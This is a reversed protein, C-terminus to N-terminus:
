VSPNEGESLGELAAVREELQQVRRILAAVDSQTVGHLRKLVDEATKVVQKEVGGVVRASRKEIDRIADNARGRLTTQLKRVDTTLEARTRKTLARVDRDIRAALREGEKRLREASARLGTVPGNGTRM